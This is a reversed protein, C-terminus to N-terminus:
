APPPTFTVLLRILLTESTVASLDILFELPNGDGSVPTGQDQWTAMSDVSTQLQYDQGVVSPALVRFTQDIRESSLLPASPHRVFDLFVENGQQSISGTIGAPLILPLATADGILTGAQIITVRGSTAQLGSTRVEIVSSAPLSLTGTVALLSGSQGSLTTIVRAGPNLTIPGSITLTAAPDEFSGAAVAGDITVPSSISGSGALTGAAAVTVASTSALPNSNIFLVGEAVHTPGTYTNVGGLALYHPGAKTIGYGMGNDTIPSNFALQRAQGVNAVTITRNGALTIAGSSFNLNRNGVFGFDANLLLTNALNLTGTGSSLNGGNITVLGTGGTGGLAELHDVWLTGSNLTIGGTLQNNTRPLFLTGTGNKIISGGIGIISSDIRINGTGDFTLTNANLNMGGGGASRVLEGTGNNTWTQNATLLPQVRQNNPNAVDVGIEVRGAGEEVTVGAAGITITTSGSGGGKQLITTGPNTFRLGLVTRAEGLNVTVDGPEAAFVATNAASPLSGTSWNATDGWATTGTGTFVVETAIAPTSLTCTLVLTPLLLTRAHLTM